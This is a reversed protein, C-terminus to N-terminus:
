SRFELMFGRCCARLDPMRLANTTVLNSVNQDELSFTESYGFNSDLSTGRNGPCIYEEGVFEEPICPFGNTNGAAWVLITKQQRNRQEMLEITRGFNRRLELESYHEIIGTLGFSMNVFDLPNGSDDRWDLIQQFYYIRVLFQVEFDSSRRFYVPDYVNRGEGSRNLPISFMAIDAGPAVGQFFKNESVVQDPFAATNAVAVSAVQTGHSNGSSLDNPMRPRGTEDVAGPIFEEYIEKGFFLPHPHDCASVILFICPDYMGQDIGTDVFGVTQGTGPEDLEGYDLELRAYAEDAHIAGLGWQIQFEPRNRIESARALIQASTDARVESSFPGPIPYPSELIPGTPRPRDSGSSTTIPRDPSSGGGGGCGTFAFALIFVTATNYFRRGFFQWFEIPSMRCKKIFHM